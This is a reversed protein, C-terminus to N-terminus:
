RRRLIPKGMNCANGPVTTTGQPSNVQVNNILLQHANTPDKQSFAWVGNGGVALSVCCWQQSSPQFSPDKNPNNGSCDIIAATNRSWQPVAPPLPEFFPPPATITFTYAQPPTKDDFFYIPCKEPNAANIVFSPFSPRVPKEASPDNKCIRYRTFNVNDPGAIGYNINIPPKALDPNELNKTSGVDIIIGTGDAQINGVADDVSYAYVNPAAIFQPNAPNTPDGHVFRVWPNFEYKAPQLTGYNLKDFMLKIGLYLDKFGPTNQLLNVSPDCEGAASGETFPAWGYVHSIMVDDTLAIPSPSCQIKIYNNYNATMLKKIAVIANCFDDGQAAMCTGPQGISGAYTVWNTRLAQIPAWVVTPWSEGKAPDLPTLDPPPDAPPPGSPGILRAFIELPSALKPIAVPSPANPFTRIFQPWGPVAAQFATLAAQFTAFTQPTGVYGVQNNQFPGMATPGYAVNVYTVDFDVNGLDLTNPPSNPDDGSQAVRAGLTFELLQSPDSKPLDANDSFFQLECRRACSPLAGTTGTVPQQNARNTLDDALARPTQPMTDLFLQITGGNWWDIYQDPQTPDPTAVLQTYLPITISVSEGPAIGNTPEIYIRYVSNTVYPFKGTAIQARTIQFIAQMWIDAGTHKGTALVPFIYQDPDDNFIKITMTPITPPVIQAAAGDACGLGLGLVILFTAYARM